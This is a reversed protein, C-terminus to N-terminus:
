FSCPLFLLQKDVAEGGCACKQDRKKLSSHHFLPSIGPKGEAVSTREALFIIINHKMKGEGDGTWHSHAHFPVEGGRQQLSHLLYRPYM